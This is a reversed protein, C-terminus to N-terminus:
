RGWPCNTGSLASDLGSSLQVVTERGDVLDEEALEEQGCGSLLLFCFIVIMITLKHM